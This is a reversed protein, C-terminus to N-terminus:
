NNNKLKISSLINFVLILPMKLVDEFKTIDDNVLGLIIYEWNFSKKQEDLAVARKYEELERDDMEDTDDEDLIDGSFLGSYKDLIISRYELYETRVNWILNVDVDLFMNKRTDVWNGYEEFKIEDFDTAPTFRRYLVSLMELITDPMSVYHELDIWEGLSLKSFPIKKLPTNNVRLEDVSIVPAIFIKNFESDIVSYQYNEVEEFSKDLYISVVEIKYDMETDFNEIELSVIELYNGLTLM